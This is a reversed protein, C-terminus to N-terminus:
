LLQLEPEKQIYALFHVVSRAYNSKGAATFLPSFAALNKFQM